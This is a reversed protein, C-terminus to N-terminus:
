PLSTPPIIDPPGYPTTGDLSYQDSLSDLAVDEGEDDPNHVTAHVRVMLSYVFRRESLSRYVPTERGIECYAIGAQGLDKGALAKKVDGLIANVGPDAAFEGALASGVVAEPLMGGRLNSSVAWIDFDTEYRYLAGPTQSKPVHDAAEWRIAVSPRQSILRDFLEAETVEGEYLRVGILYGTQVTSDTKIWRGATGADLPKITLDGDDASTTATHWEYCVGKSTCYILDYDNRLYGAASAGRTGVGRLATIDAAVAQRKRLGRNVANFVAREILTTCTRFTLDAM